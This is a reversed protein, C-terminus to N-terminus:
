ITDAEAATDTDYVAMMMNVAWYPYFTSLLHIGDIEWLDKHEEAIKDNNVFHYGDRACM